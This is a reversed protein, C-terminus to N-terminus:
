ITNLCVDRNRNVSTLHLSCNTLPYIFNQTRRLRLQYINIHFKVIFFPKLLLQPSFNFVHQWLYVEGKRGLKTASKINLKYSHYAVLRVSLCLFQSPNGSIYGWNIAVINHHHHHHHHHHYYYYYYYYYLMKVHSIVKLIGYATVM